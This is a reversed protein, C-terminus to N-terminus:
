REVVKLNWRKHTLFYNKIFGYDEKCVYVYNHVLLTRIYIADHRPDLIIKRISKFATYGSDEAPRMNHIGQGTLSAATGVANAISGAIQESKFMHLFIGDGNMDYSYRSVGHQILYFPLYALFGIGFVLAYIGLVILAVTGISMSGDTIFLVALIGAIITGIIAMFFMLTQLMHPNKRMDVDYYWRYVGDKNLKVRNTYEM